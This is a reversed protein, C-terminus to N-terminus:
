RGDSYRILKLGYRSLYLELYVFRPRVGEIWQLCLIIGLPGNIAYCDCYLLHLPDARKTLDFEKM